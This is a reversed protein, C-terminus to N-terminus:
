TTMLQAIEAPSFDPHLAHNIGEALIGAMRDILADIERPTVIMEGLTEGVARTAFAIFAEEDEPSAGDARAFASLADAAIVAAYVVMPVGVAIVPVGLNERNLARRHNGVGSGPAVGTDALQITTGIRQASRAALADIAIVADPRVHQAMGLVIEATEMGTVGLVGPAAACVSRVEGLADVGPLNAMHRTVLVREVTRPGLADPTVHRNGLGVILVSRAGKPLMALIDKSLADALVRRASLGQAADMPCSLTVYTGVERGLRKAAAQDRIEVVTREIGGPLTNTQPAIGEGRAEMALDTWIQRLVVGERGM